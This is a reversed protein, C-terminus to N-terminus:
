HALRETPCWCPHLASANCRRPITIATTSATSTTAQARTGSPKKAYWTNRGMRLPDVDQDVEVVPGGM